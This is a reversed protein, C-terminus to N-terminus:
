PAATELSESERLPEAPDPLLDPHSRFQDEALILSFQTGAPSSETLEIRGHLQHEVINRCVFLGLGTGTEKTTFYPQFIRQQHAPSIGHGDDRIEIRLAGQLIMTRLEIVGGEDTAD